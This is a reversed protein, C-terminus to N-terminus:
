LKWVPFSKHVSTKRATLQWECTCSNANYCSSYVRNVILPPSVQSIYQSAICMPTVKGGGVLFFFDTDIESICM